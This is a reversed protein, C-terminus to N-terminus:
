FVCQFSGSNMSFSIRHKGKCLTIVLCYARILFKRNSAYLAQGAQKLRVVQKRSEEEWEARPAAQGQLKITRLFAM